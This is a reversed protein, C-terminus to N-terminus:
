VQQAESYGSMASSILCDGPKLWVIVVRGICGTERGTKTFHKELKRRVDENAARVRLLYGSQSNLVEFEGTDARDSIYRTLAMSYLDTSM